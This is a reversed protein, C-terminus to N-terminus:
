IDTIGLKQKFYKLRLMGVTKKKVVGIINGNEDTVSFRDGDKKEMEKWAEEIELNGDILHFPKMIDKAIKPIPNEGTILLRFLMKDDIYGLFKNTKIDKVLVSGISHNVMIKAINDVTDETTCFIIKKRALSIIKVM